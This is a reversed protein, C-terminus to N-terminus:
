TLSDNEIVEFRKSVNEGSVVGKLISDGWVIISNIGNEM